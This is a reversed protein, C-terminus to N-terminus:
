DEVTEIPDSSAGTSSGQLGDSEHRGDQETQRSHQSHQSHQSDSRGIWFSNPQVYGVVRVELGEITTADAQNLLCLTAPLGFKEAYRAAGEAIKLDPAKRPTTDQWGLFVVGPATKAPRIAVPTEV